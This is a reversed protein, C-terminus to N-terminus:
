MAVVIPWIPAVKYESHRIIVEFINVKCVAGDSESVQQCKSSSFNSVHSQFSTNSKPM